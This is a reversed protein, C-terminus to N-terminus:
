FDRCNIEMRTKLEAGGSDTQRHKSNLDGALLVARDQNLITRLDNEDLRSSPKIYGAGIIVEKKQELRVKVLTAELTAM